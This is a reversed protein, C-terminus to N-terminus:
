LEMGKDNAKAKGRAAANDGGPPNPTQDPRLDGLEGQSVEQGVQRGMAGQMQQGIKGALAQAMRRGPKEETGSM